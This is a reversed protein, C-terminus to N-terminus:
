AIDVGPIELVQGFTFKEVVELCIRELQFVQGRVRSMRLNEGGHTLSTIVQSILVSPGIGEVLEGGGFVQPM